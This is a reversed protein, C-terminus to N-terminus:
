DHLYWPVSIVVVRSDEKQMLAARLKMARRTHLVWQWWHKQMLMPVIVAIIRHPFETEIRGIEALLPEVLTRYPSNVVELRPAPLGAQRAPEDVDRSWQQQITDRADDDADSNKRKRSKKPAEDDASTVRDQPGLRLGSLSAGLGFQPEKRGGSKKRGWAM